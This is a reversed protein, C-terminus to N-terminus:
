ARPDVMIRCMQWGRISGFEVMSMILSLRSLSLKVKNSAGDRDKQISQHAHIM